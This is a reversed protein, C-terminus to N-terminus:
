FIPMRLTKGTHILIDVNRIVAESVEPRMAKVLSDQVDIVVLALREKDLYYNNLIM